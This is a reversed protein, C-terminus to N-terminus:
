KRRLTWTYDTKAGDEETVSITGRITKQSSDVPFSFSFSGGISAVDEDVAENTNARDHEACPSQHVYSHLTKGNTDPLSFTITGDANGIDAYVLTEKNYQAKTRSTRTTEKPGKYRVANPGCHGEDVKYRDYEYDTHTQDGTVVAINANTADGTRDLRGTLTLKVATATEFYGGNEALNAGSRKEREIYHFRNVEITGTWAGAESPEELEKEFTISGEGIGRKSVTKVTFYSKGEGEKTFTFTAGPAGAQSEPSLTGGAPEADLRANVKSKDQL